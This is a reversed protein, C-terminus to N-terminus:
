IQAVLYRKMLKKFPKNNIFFIAFVPTLDFIPTYFIFVLSSSSDIPIRLLGRALEDNGFNVLLPNQRPNCYFCSDSVIKIALKAKFIHSFAKELHALQYQQTQLM